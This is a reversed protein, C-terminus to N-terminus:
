WGIALQGGYGVILNLGSVLVWYIAARTAIVTWYNDGALPLACALLFILLYPLVPLGAGRTPAGSGAGARPVATLTDTPMLSEKRGRQRLHGAARGAARRHVARVRRDLRVRRGG